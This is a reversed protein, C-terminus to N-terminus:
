KCIFDLNWQEYGQQSSIVKINKGNKKCFSDAEEFVTKKAAASGVLSNSATITYVGDGKPLVGTSSCGVVSLLTILFVYKQNKM